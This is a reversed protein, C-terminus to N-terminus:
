NSVIATTTLLKGNPMQLTIYYTGASATLTVGVVGTVTTIYNFLRGTVITLIEGNTLTAVSTGAASALGTSVSGVYGMGTVAHDLDAGSADKLSIQVACSGSAPTTVVSLSAPQNDLSAVELASANGLITQIRNIAERKAYESM